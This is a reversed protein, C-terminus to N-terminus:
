RGAFRKQAHYEVKCSPYGIWPLLGRLFLGRERFQLLTMVVQRDLLRFDAMGEELRVGSLYSFLKYFGGWATRKLVAVDGSDLRVTFVVKHGQQWHAVLVPILEPPHQLDADMSIVAQGSATALGAYLAYQHGFNRSLRVGRVHKDRENLRVIEDWTKDTSGDDCIILEWSLNLAPLAKVIESYLAFLNGEENYAPVVISLEPQGSTNDRSATSM